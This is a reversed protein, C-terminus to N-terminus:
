KNKKEQKKTHADKEEDALHIKYIDTYSIAEDEDMIGSPTLGTCDTSSAVANFGPLYRDANNEGDSEKKKKEKEM